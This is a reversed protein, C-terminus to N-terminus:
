LHNHVLYTTQIINQLIFSIRSIDPTLARTFLKSNYCRVPRTPTKSLLLMLNILNKVSPTKTLLNIFSYIEHYTSDFINRFNKYFLIDVM